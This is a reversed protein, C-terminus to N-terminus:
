ALRIGYDRSAYDYFERLPAASEGKLGKYEPKIQSLQIMFRIGGLEITGYLSLREARELLTFDSVYEPCTAKLHTYAAELDDVVFGIHHIRSPLGDSLPQGPEAKFFFLANVGTTLVLLHEDDRVNKMKLGDQFFHRCAERDTTALALHDFGFNVFEAKHEKLPTAELLFRCHGYYDHIEYLWMDPFILEGTPLTIRLRHRHMVDEPLFAHLAQHVVRERPMSGGFSRGDPLTFSVEIMPAISM